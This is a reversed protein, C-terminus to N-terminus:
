QSGDRTSPSVIVKAGCDPNQFFPSSDHNLLLFLIALPVISGVAKAGVARKRPM